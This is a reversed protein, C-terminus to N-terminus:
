EGILDPAFDEIEALLEDDSYSSLGEQLHELAYAWLEKMDMGGVIREAYAEILEDRNVM